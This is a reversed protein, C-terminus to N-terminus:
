SAVAKPVVQSNLSALEPEREMVAIADQWRLDDRNGLRAYIARILQLDEDTDLTWRYHSYDRSARHAATRFIQPHEYFYPTVHERQHPKCAQQWARALASASFVETDLGRPYTRPFVNSAYDARDACFTRITDDIVSGDILPCDSTIRVILDCAFAQSAQYYRDLVDSECGRFCSVGLRECERVIADDGPSDTTAVVIEEVLAARRVRKVVRALTTEGGIDMLVKGPLRTSGMRAQIAAVIKQPESWSTQV